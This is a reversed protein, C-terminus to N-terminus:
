SQVMQGKIDELLKIVLDTKESQEAAIADLRANLRKEVEELDKKTVAGTSQNCSQDGGAGGEGNKEVASDTRTGNLVVRSDLAESLASMTFEKTALGSPPFTMPSSGQKAGFLGSALLLSQPLMSTPMAAGGSGGGGGRQFDSFLKKFDKARDSLEAGGLMSDLRKMNFVGKEEVEGGAEPGVQGKEVGVALSLFWLESPAGPFRLEVSDAPGGFDSLSADLLYMSFEPESDEELLTGQVTTLYEGSSGRRVEARRAGCVLLIRSIKRKQLGAAPKMVLDCCCTTDQKGEPRRLAFCRDASVSDPEFEFDTEEEVRVKASDAEPDHLWSSTLSIAPSTM